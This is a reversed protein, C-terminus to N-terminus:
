DLSSADTVPSQYTGIMREVEALAVPKQLFGVIELGLSKGWEETTELIRTDAGSMLVIRATCGNHSLMKLLEIGDVHPMVIDLFILATDPRVSDLLTMPDTTALCGLGMGEAADSVFRGSAHDDDLVM